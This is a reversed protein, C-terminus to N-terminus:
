KQKRKHRSGYHEDIKRQAEAISREEDRHAKMWLFAWIPALPALFPAILLLLLAVFTWFAGLLKEVVRVAYSPVELWTCIFDLFSQRVAQWYTM